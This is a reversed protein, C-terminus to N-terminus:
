KFLKNLLEFSIGPEVSTGSVQDVTGPCSLATFTRDSVGNTYHVIVDYGDTSAPCSSTSILKHSSNIEDIIQNLQDGQIVVSGLIKNPTQMKIVVAYEPDKLIPHFENDAKQSCGAMLFIVFIFVVARNM